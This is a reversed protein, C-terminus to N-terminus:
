ECSVRRAECEEESCDGDCEAPCRECHDHEAVLVDRCHYCVPPIANRISLLEREIAAICDSLSAAWILPRRHLTAQWSECLELSVGEHTPEVTAEATAFNAFWCVSGGTGRRTMEVGLVKPPSM